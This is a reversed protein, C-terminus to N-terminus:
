LCSFDLFVVSSAEPQTLDSPTLLHDLEMIDTPHLAAEAAALTSSSLIYIYKYKLRIFEYFEV